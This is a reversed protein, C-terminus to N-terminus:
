FPIFLHNVHCVIGLGLGLLFCLIFALAVSLWATITCKSSTRKGWFLLWVSQNHNERKSQYFLKAWVKSRQSERRCVLVPSCVKWGWLQNVCLKAFAGTIHTPPFDWSQAGLHSNTSIYRWTKIHRLFHPGLKLPMGESVINPHLLFYDFQDFEVRIMRVMSKISKELKVCSLAFWNCGVNIPSPPFIEKEEM